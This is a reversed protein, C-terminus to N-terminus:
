AITSSYKVKQALNRCCYLLFLQDDCNRNLHKIRKVRFCFDQRVICFFSKQNEFKKQFLSYLLHALSICSYGANPEQDKYTPSQNGRGKSHLSSLHSGIWREELLMSHPKMTLYNEWFFKEKKRNSPQFKNISYVSICRIALKKKTHKSLGKVSQVINEAM